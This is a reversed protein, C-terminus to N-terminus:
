IWESKSKVHILNTFIRVLKLCFNIEFSVAHVQSCLLFLISYFREFKSDFKEKPRSKSLMPCCASSIKPPLYM